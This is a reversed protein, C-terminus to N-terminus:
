LIRKTAKQHKIVLKRFKDIVTEAHENVRLLYDEVSKPKDEWASLQENFRILTDMYEEATEYFTKDADIYRIVVLMEVAVTSFRCVVYQRSVKKGKAPAEKQNKVNENCIKMTLNLVAKNRKIESLIAM